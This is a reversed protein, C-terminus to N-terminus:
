LRTITHIGHVTGDPNTSFYRGEFEYVPGCREGSIDPLGSDIQVCRQDDRAQWRGEVEGSGSDNSWHNTFTGDRRWTNKAVTGKSDVVSADDRVDSFTIEIDRTTLRRGEELPDALLLSRLRSRTTAHVGLGSEIFDDVSGSQIAMAELAGNLSRPSVGLIQRLIDTAAEPNRAHIASVQEKIQQALMENSLLFDQMVQREPIGLTLLLLAAAFGTRDKGATCHFLHPLNREDTFGGLWQGWEKRLRSDTVFRERSLLATLMENNLDGSMIQHRLTSVDVAPDNIALTQQRIASPARNPAESREADSRLDTILAIKMRHFRLLDAETLEALSDSRYIMNRRVILGDATFYGGLDRTNLSGQFLSQDAPSSLCTLLLCIVFASKSTKM